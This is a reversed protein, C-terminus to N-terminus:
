LTGGIFTTRERNCRGSILDCVTITVPVSVRDVHREALRLELPLDLQEGPQLDVAAEISDIIPVAAEVRVEASMDRQTKNLIRLRYHNVILDPAARQFLEGRDRLVSVELASRTVLAYSLAGTMVLLALAYGVARPRLWHSQGGQLEHETTYRILGEPYGMKDM